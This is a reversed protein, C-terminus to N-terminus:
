WTEAAEEAVIVEPLRDRSDRNYQACAINLATLVSTDAHLFDGASAALAAIIHALQPFGGDTGRVPRIYVFLEGCEDVAVAPTVSPLLATAAARFSDRWRSSTHRENFSVKLWMGKLVHSANPLNEVFAGGNNVIIKSGSRPTYVFEDLTLSILM